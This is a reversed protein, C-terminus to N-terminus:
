LRLIPVVAKYRHHLDNTREIALLASTRQISEVVVTREDATRPRGLHDALRIGRLARQTRTSQNLLDSEKNDERALRSGFLQSDRGFGQVRVM